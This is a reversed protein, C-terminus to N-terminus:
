VDEGMVRFKQGRRDWQVGGGFQGQTGNMNSYLSNVEVNIMTLNYIIYSLGIALMMNFQSFSFGYRRFYPLLCHHESEERKNLITRPNRAM